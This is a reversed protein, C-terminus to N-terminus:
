GARAPHDPEGPLAGRSPRAPGAVTVGSGAPLTGPRGRAYGTRRAVAVSEELLATARQQDGQEHAARGLFLLALASAGDSRVQRWRDLSEEFLTRVSDLEGRALALVGLNNLARAINVPDGSARALALGEHLLV